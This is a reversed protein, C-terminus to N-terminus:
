FLLVDFAALSEEGTRLEVGDDLYADLALRLHHEGDCFLLGQARDGPPAFRLDPGLISAPVGLDIAVGQQLLAWKLSGVLLNALERSWDILAGLEQEGSPTTAEMLRVPAALLLSGAIKQGTFPLISVPDAWRAERISFSGEYTVNLDLAAFMREAAKRMVHTLAAANAASPRNPWRGPGSARHPKM